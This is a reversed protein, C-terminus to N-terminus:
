TMRLQTQGTTTGRIVPSRPLIKKRKKEKEKKQM